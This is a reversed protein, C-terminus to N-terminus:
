AALHYDYEDKGARVNVTLIDVSELWQDFACRSCDYNLLCLKPLHIEGALMKRCFRGPGAADRDNIHNHEKMEAVGKEADNAVM